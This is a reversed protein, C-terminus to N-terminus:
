NRLTMCPKRLLAVAVSVYHHDDALTSLWLRGNPIAAPQRVYRAVSEVVWLRDPAVLPSASEVQSLPATVASGDDTTIVLAFEGSEQSYCIGPRGELRNGDVTTLAV